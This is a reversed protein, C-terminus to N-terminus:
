LPISRGKLKLLDCVQVTALSKNLTYFHIGPAGGDLLERCQDTAWDIGIQEIGAKDGEHSQVRDRLDKPLKVGFKSEFKELQSFGTVPMIGPLIPVTVGAAHAKDVFGFYSANDLFMQTVLFDCGADVKQKLHDIGIALDPTELHGEPYCGSGVCFPHRDKLFPILDKSFPFASFPDELDTDQPRDGRLAMVNQIGLNWLQDAISAIEERTHCVGTLHSMVEASTRGKIQEAAQLSLSRTSGGAGYTMSVFDPGIVSLHDIADLLSERATDTKPPYFEFSVTSQGNFLSSIRMTKKVQSMKARIVALFM